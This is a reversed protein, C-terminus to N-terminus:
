PKCLFEPNLGHTQFLEAVVKQVNSNLTAEVHPNPDNWIPHSILKKCIGEIRHWTDPPVQRYFVPEEPRLWM